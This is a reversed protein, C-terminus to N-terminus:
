EDRCNVKYEMGQQWLLIRDEEIILIADVNKPVTTEERDYRHETLVIITLRTNMLIQGSSLVSTQLVLEVHSIIVETNCM